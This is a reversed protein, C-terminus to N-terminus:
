IPGRRFAAGPSSVQPNPALQVLCSIYEEAEEWRAGNDRLAFLNRTAEVAHPWDDGKSSGVMAGRSDEDDHLAGDQAGYVHFEVIRPLMAFGTEGCMHAPAEAERSTHGGAFSDQVTHLVSGFAIDRIRPLLGSAKDQRGLIYLDAVTWESCSFHETITAIDIDRLFQDHRIERASVKWAFQLWEKMKQQTLEPAAGQESAMGHLFQLDGFHSRTMLNGKIGDAQASCGVIRGAAAKKEADKFLCYWCAPQTSFRVTQDTRCHKGFASCRGEDESLRFPPLDNWRVGYIVYPSAFPIDAGVCSKNKLLTGQEVPCGFGLQTIEEHVPSKILVGLKGAVRALNSDSENTLRSEFNSGLPAIQYANATTSLLALLIILSQTRPM